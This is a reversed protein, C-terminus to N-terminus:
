DHNRFSYINEIIEVVKLGDLANTMMKDQSFIVKHANKYINGLNQINDSTPFSPLTYDKIHCFQVENMYQGGVKLTGNEAIISMTSEFNKDWCSTSYQFLGSGRNGFEFHFSGTDEFEILGQHNFNNFSASRINLDGLLWYLTDIYHAFQTFLTGGDMEKSGRWHGKTYYREDRNWFCTVNVQYIEGLLNSSVLDHMWQSLPAYRNQMVCFVHKGNHLSANLLQEASKKSLTMPKECVVHYKLNLAEITHKAHMGNPTCVSILDVSLNSEQFSVMNGFHPVNLDTQEINPDITAVLTIHDLTQIAQIHKKGIHGLGIIAVNLKNKM